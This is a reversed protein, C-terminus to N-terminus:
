TFPDPLLVLGDGISTVPLVVGNGVIISSPATSNPLHLTTLNGAEPTTHNSSSPDAVLDTILPTLTM